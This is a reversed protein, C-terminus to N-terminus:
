SLRQLHWPNWAGMFWLWVASGRDTSRHGLEVTAKRAPILTGHTILGGGVGELTLGIM